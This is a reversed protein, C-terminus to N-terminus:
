DKGYTQFRLSLKQGDGSPVPKWAGKKFFNNLSFNNFSLGLTGIIRGYGWGGSLEIQDASTEEVEFEVDTIYTKSLNILFWFFLSLGLFLLFM